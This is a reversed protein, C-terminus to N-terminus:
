YKITMNLIVNSMISNSILCAQESKELIKIAKDKDNENEITLIPFLEVETMKLSKEVLELKGKAECKFSTFSLRSKEAISLFTTMFCSNVAATFLHEPSWIGEVGGPFQPPTAVQIKQNLIPSSVEGIRDKNWELNVQYFETEM